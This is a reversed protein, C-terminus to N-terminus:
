SVLFLLVLGGMDDGASWGCQGEWGLGRARLCWSKEPKRLEATGQLWSCGDSTERLEGRSAGEM